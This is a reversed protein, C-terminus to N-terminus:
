MFVMRYILLIIWNQLKFITKIQLNLNIQQMLAVDM